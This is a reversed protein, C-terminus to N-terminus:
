VKKITHVMFQGYLLPTCQDFLRNFLAVVADVTYKFFSANGTCVVLRVHRINIRHLHQFSNHELDKM